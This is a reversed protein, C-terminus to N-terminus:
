PRLTWTYWDSTASWDDTWFLLWGFADEASAMDLVARVRGEYQPGPPVLSADLVPLGKVDTIRALAAEVTGFDQQEGTNLNRVLYRQSLAHYSLEFGQEISAVDADPMWRRVRSVEIQYTLHLTLGGDIAKLAGNPLQMDLQAALELVDEDFNAQAGRILLQSTKPAAFAANTALFCLLLAAMLRLFPPRNRVGTPDSHSM